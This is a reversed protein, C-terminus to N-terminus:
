NCLQQYLTYNPSNSVNLYKYERGIVDQVDEIDLNYRHRNVWDASLVVEDREQPPNGYLLDQANYVAYDTSQMMYSQMTLRSNHSHMVGPLRLRESSLAIGEYTTRSIYMAGYSSRIRDSYTEQNHLINDIGLQEYDTEFVGSVVLTAERSLVYNGLELTIKRGVTDVEGFVVMSVVDSILIEGEAWDGFIYQLSIDIGDVINVNANLSMYDQNTSQNYVSVGVYPVVRDFREALTHYYTMGISVNVDQNTLSNHQSQSVPLLRDGQQSIANYLLDEQSSLMINSQFFLLAISLTILVVSVTTRAWKNGLLKLAYRVCFWCSLRYKSDRRSRELCPPLNITDVNSLDGKGTYCTILVKCRNYKLCAHVIHDLLQSTPVIAIDLAHPSHTRDVEVTEIDLYEVQVKVSDGVSHQTAYQVLEGVANDIYGARDLQVSKYNISRAWSELKGDHLRLVYDAYQRVISDDHSVVVILRSASLQQLISLIEKANASDLSGTPEDMLLVRSQKVLSRAIALRQREGGSLYRISTNQKADLGVQKLISSIALTDSSVLKLNDLVSFDYVLNFEQFVFSVEQRYKTLRHM